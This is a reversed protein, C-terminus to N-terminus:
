IAAIVRECVGCVIEVKGNAAVQQRSGAPIREVTPGEGPHYVPNEPESIRAEGGNPCGEHGLRLAYTENRAM